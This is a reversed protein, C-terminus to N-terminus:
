TFLERSIVPKTIIVCYDMFEDLTQSIDVPNSFNDPLAQAWKDHYGEKYLHIHPCQIEEGDPNRHLSGAIDIRVLIITKRARSQFTNKRLEIKSRWIDLIFEERNDGSCLPIHLSGGYTPFLFQNYGRYHKEMNLLTNAEHQTLLNSM